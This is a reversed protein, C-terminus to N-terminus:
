FVKKDFFTNMVIVLGMTKVQTSVGFMKIKVSGPCAIGGGM